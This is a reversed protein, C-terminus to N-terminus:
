VNEELETDDDKDDDENNIITNENEVFDKVAQIDLKNNVTFREFFNDAMILKYTDTLCTNPNSEDAVLEITELEFDKIDTYNPDSGYLICLANYAKDMSSSVIYTVGPSSNRALNGRNIGKVKIRFLKNNGLAM